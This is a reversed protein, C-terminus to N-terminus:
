SMMVALEGNHYHHYLFASLGVLTDVAIFRYASPIGHLAQYAFGAWLLAHVPRLNQWWIKSGFVEPGTNREGIFMIYLWGLVFLLAIVGLAKLLFTNAYASTITFLTRAGICGFLFLYFRKQLNNM